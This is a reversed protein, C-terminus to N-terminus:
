ARKMWGGLYAADDDFGIPIATSQPEASEQAMPTVSWYARGLMAGPRRHYLDFIWPTVARNLERHSRATYPILKRAATSGSTPVLREVPDTTLVSREGRRIREIWPEFDDYDHIPVRSAFQQYDSLDGLGYEGAFASGASKRLYSKLLRDQAGEPDDLATAFSAWAPASAAVFALNALAATVM